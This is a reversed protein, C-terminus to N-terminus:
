HVAGFFLRKYKSRGLSNVCLYHLLFLSGISIFGWLCQFFVRSARFQDRAVSTRPFFDLVRGGNKIARGVSEISLLSIQTEHLLVSYGLMM